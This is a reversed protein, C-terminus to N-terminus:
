PRKLQSDILEESLIPRPGLYNGDRSVLESPLPGRWPQDRTQALFRMREDLEPLMTNLMYWRYPDRAHPDRRGDNLFLNDLIDAASVLCARMKWRCVRSMKEEYKALKRAHESSYSGKSMERYTQQDVHDAIALGFRDAIRGHHEGTDEILDHMMAVALTRKDRIGFLVEIIWRVRLPHMWEPTIGDKRMRPGVSTRVYEAVEVLDLEQQM